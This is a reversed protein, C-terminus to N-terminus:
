YRSNDYAWADSENHLCSGRYRSHSNRPRVPRTSARVYEEGASVITKGNGRAAALTACLIEAHSM